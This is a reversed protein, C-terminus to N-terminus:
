EFPERASDLMDSFVHAQVVMLDLKPVLRNDPEYWRLAIAPTLQHAQEVLKAWMDLSISLSKGRTAKGDIGLPWALEDDQRVDLQDRFQNGSGRTRRGGFTEALWIEHADSLDRTTPDKAM